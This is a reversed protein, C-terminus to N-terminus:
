HIRESLFSVKEKEAQLLQAQEISKKKIIARRWAPLDDYPDKDAPGLQTLETSVQQNRDETKLSEPAAAKVDPSQLVRGLIM